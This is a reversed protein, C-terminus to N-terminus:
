KWRGKASWIFDLFTTETAVRSCIFSSGTFNNSSAYWFVETRNSDFSGSISPDDIFSVPLTLGGSITLTFFSGSNRDTWDGESTAGSNHKGFAIQTGDAFRVWEGDSNSDREVIPSGDVWPMLSFDADAGGSLSAKDDLDVKVTGEGTELVNGTGWTAIDPVTEDANKGRLDSM